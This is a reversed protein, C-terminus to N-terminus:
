TIVGAVGLVLARPLNKRPETMEGAVFCATQWGGYAFLVAVMAAGLEGIGGSPAPPTRPAPAGLLLGCGVLALLALIKLVMLISQVSSGARVGLCNVAVLLAVVLSAVAGDGLPISFLERFYRAFTLASAAMGGTQIVLLLAWGYLFALLPHYAERLYAYQGGVHPRRAALEAYVFAGLVAGLGGLLWAGLILTPSKVHRAVIAPTVFIGSGVIGGMVLMTADFLGIRRALESM